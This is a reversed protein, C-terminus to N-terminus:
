IQRMWIAFLLYVDLTSGWKRYEVGILFKQIPCSSSMVHNKYIVHASISAIIKKEIKVKKPIMGKKMPFNLGFTNNAVVWPKEANAM